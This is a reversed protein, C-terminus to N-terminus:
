SLLSPMWIYSVTLAITMLVLVFFSINTLRSSTLAIYHAIFISTHVIMISLFFDIFQPQFLVLFITVLNTILLMEYILRTRMKDKFSNLFFHIAGILFLLTIFGFAIMRIEGIEGLRFPSFLIPHFVSNSTLFSFDGKILCYGIWFWYPTIIGLISAILTRLDFTMLKTRLLIWFVPAFVLILPIQTSAIGLLAFAYFIKGQSLRDQYCKLILSYTGIFCLQVILVNAKCTIFTMMSTLILFSCSVMRSYIRILANNNNLEIMLYVSIAFFLLELYLGVTFLGQAIWLILCYIITIPLAIRSQAVRNQIRKM